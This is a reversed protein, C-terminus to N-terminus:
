LVRRYVNKGGTDGIEYAGRFDIENKELIDASIHILSLVEDNELRVVAAMKAPHKEAAKHMLEGRRCVLSFGTELDVAGSFALAAVEGLSFGATM